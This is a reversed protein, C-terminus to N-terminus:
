QVTAQILNKWQAISRKLHNRSDGKVGYCQLGVPGKYGMSKLLGLLHSQQFDGQDLPQILTTWNRTGVEAGCISVRWLYPRAKELETKLNSDPEVMLFHCLNFMVGVNNRDVKKAIRVADGVHDVHCGSHPYLVIKLGSQKAAQAVNRVAAVAQEDTGKGGVFLEVVTARNKLQSIATLLNQPVNFSTETINVGAYISYIKLEAASYKQWRTELDNVNASGIGDYGLEKLVKIREDVSSFHVGNQFAFFEPSFRPQAILSVPTFGCLFAFVFLQPNM